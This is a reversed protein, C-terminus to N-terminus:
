TFRRRRNINRISIAASGSVHHNDSYDGAGHDHWGTVSDILRSPDLGRVYPTLEIDPASNNPASQGWGENYIVWTYISPFSKHLDVVDTLQRM